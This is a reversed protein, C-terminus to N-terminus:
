WRKEAEKFPDFVGLPMVQALGTDQDEGTAEEPPRSRPAAALPPQPPGTRGPHSGAQTRAAVRRNQRCAQPVPGTTGAPGQSAKLLLVRVAETIEEEAPTRDHQDRLQALAHNWALDGFPM